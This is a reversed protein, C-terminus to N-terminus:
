QLTDSSFANIALDLIQQAETHEGFGLIEIKDRGKYNAFWIKVIDAVGVYRQRLELMSSVTYMPSDASVALLKHDEEGGDLMKLVGILKVKVIEGRAAAPGLILADLPDGDGGLHTPQLTSPIMGYNGPLGLYQIQRRTNGNLEWELVGSPKTVEWKAITGAPIEVVVNISGDHNIAPFGSLFSRDDFITYADTTRTNTENTCSVNAFAIGTVIM